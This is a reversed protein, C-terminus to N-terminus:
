KDYRLPLKKQNYKEEVYDEINERFRVNSFRNAQNKIFDSNFELKSFDLVAEALSEWVQEEFFLGTKYDEVIELIGGSGYAIVPCGSAIAEVAAIGFDEEQPHIFARAKSLYRNRIEDSIEGLFEINPKAISKLYDICEGDGIIKLPLKLQNFARIVLDVKKYPRLRSVIIYYDQKNSDSYCKDVNVPPYIVKSDRRYYKKIRGAVFNSNAIFYDVRQAASYDWERLKKLEVVLIKKLLGPIKLNSVYEHTDSWLYRTPTHCYCFHLSNSPTIIGKALASTSSLIIEYKSFDFGEWASPMFTLFWRFFRLSGPIKQLKSTIIKCDRFFRDNGKDHILTYIPSNPFIKHFELLVREAGGMQFLHDHALAIKKINM